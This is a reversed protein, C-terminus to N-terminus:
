AARAPELSRLLMMCSRLAVGLFLLCGPVWMLAGGLQQDALPSLGWAETTFYHPVFMPRSSLTLIAGLLGMQISSITGAALVRVTDGPAHVLLSRWLWIASGFLSIHMSWYIATSQFTADYPVPMHWFWLFAFFAAVPPWLPARWRAPLAGAILPAAVLVLIMHQGVRASFLSVSLACLPSMFAAAAVCWGALAQWIKRPEAACLRVHALTFLLLGLILLPDTNVRAILEGPVPPAGCYPLLQAAM